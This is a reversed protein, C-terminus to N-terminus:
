SGAQTFGPPIEFLADAPTGSLWTVNGREIVMSMTAPSSMAMRRYMALRGDADQGWGMPSGGSVHMAPRCGGRSAMESPTSPVISRPLPCYARPEGIQSVYSTVSMQFNANRCSGTANTMSMDVSAASGNTAIGDITMPGLNQASTKMTLDATGPQAQTSAPRMPGMPMPPTHCAPQTDTVTYTKKALDLAIYQHRDCKEITATQALPDDTRIWGKYFTYRTLHGLRMVSMAANVGGAAEPNGTVASLMAGLGHQPKAATSSQEAVIAQYDGSFAGPPPPTAPNVIMRSIEDYQLAAPTPTAAVAAAQRGIWPPAFLAAAALAFFAITARKM